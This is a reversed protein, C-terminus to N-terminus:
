SRFAPNKPSKAQMRNLEMTLVKLFNEKDIVLINEFIAKIKKVETAFDVYEKIRKCNSLQRDNFPIVVGISGIISVNTINGLMHKSTGSKEIEIALFCRPNINRKNLFEDFNGDRQESNNFMKDIFSRYYTIAKEIETNNYTIKRSINFPGVALDLRPCYLKRIFDDTSNKAVNWEKKANKEGFIRKLSSYVLEQFDRVEMGRNGKPM